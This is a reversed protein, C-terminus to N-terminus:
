ENKVEKITHGYQVLTAVSYVLLTMLLVLLALPPMYFANVMGEDNSLAIMFIVLSPLPQAPFSWFVVQFRKFGSSVDLIDDGAARKFEGGM